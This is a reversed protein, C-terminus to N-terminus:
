DEARGGVVQNRGAAKARYLAQDAADVLTSPHKDELSSLSAVGASWTLPLEKGGCICPAEVLAQRMRDVAHVADELGTEPLVVIFEEGGWRAVTDARRLGQTLLSGVHVLARDGVSHSHTDNVQKFHDVDILAVSLDREYRIARSIEDELRYDLARRNLLGTLSDHMALTRLEDHLAKIRLASSLRAHLELTDPPKHLFDVAGASLAERIRAPDEDSTIMLVPIWRYRPHAMWERLLDIGSTGPLHWDLLVADIDDNAALAERAAEVEIAETVFFGLTELELRLVARVSASDDVLLVHRGPM